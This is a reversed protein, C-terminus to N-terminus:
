NTIHVHRRSSITYKESFVVCMMHTPLLGVGRPMTLGACHKRPTRETKLVGGWRPSLASPLPAAGRSVARNQPAAGRFQDLNFWNRWDTQRSPSAGRRRNAPPKNPFVPQNAPLPDGDARFPRSM